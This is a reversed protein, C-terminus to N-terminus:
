GRSGHSPRTAHFGHRCWTYESISSRSANMLQVPKQMMHLQIAKDKCKPNILKLVLQMFFAKSHCVNRTCVVCLQLTCYNAAVENHWELYAGLKVHHCIYIVVVMSIGIVSRTYYNFAQEHLM